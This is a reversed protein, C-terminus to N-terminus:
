LMNNLYHHVELAASRADRLTEPLTKPGTATGAFFIGKINSSNGSYKHDDSRFFGDEEVHLGTGATFPEIDKINNMGSMLVLLDLSIRLPKSQLTDEAKIKLRGEFDESVESVRGRVFRISHKSQADLYLDEYGRGFMRLDMYFCYIESEPFIEKLEIAQKVATVCCVKSCHRNCVKEDRSGVCHVFGIRSPSKVREDDRHKFFYELDKSTIVNKYIGYGYEEKLEARFLEFGTSIIVSDSHFVNEGTTNVVFKGKEKKIGTVSTNNFIKIGKIKENLEKIVSSSKIGDPFLRDWNNLNGGTKDSKEVIVCKYGLYRLQAACELGAAGGGIITVSKSDSNNKM